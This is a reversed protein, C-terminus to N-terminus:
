RGLPSLRVEGVGPQSVPTASRASSATRAYHVLVRAPGGLGAAVAIGLATVAIVCVAFIFTLLLSCEALAQGGEESFRTRRVMRHAKMVLKRGV